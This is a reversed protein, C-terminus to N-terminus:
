HKIRLIEVVRTKDDMDYLVRFDGVPIRRVGTRLKVCGRPRPTHTLNALAEKITAWTDGTLRDLDRQARPGLLLRHVPPGSPSTHM